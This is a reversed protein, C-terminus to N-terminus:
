IMYARTLQVIQDERAENTKAQLGSCKIVFELPGPSLGSSPEM